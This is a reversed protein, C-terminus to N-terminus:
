RSPQSPAASWGPPTVEGYSVSVGGRTGLFRYGKPVSADTAIVLWQRAPSPHSLGFSARYPAPVSVSWGTADLEDVAVAGEIWSDPGEFSVGVAVDPRLSTAGIAVAASAATDSQLVASSLLAQAVLYVSAGLAAIASAGAVRHGGRLSPLTMLACAVILVGPAVAWEMLYAFPLGVVDAGAAVGVAVGVLGMIALRTAQAPPGKVNLVGLVIVAVAFIGLFVEGPLRSSPLQRGHIGLSQALANGALVTGTRLGATQHQSTFFRVVLTANGPHNRVQQVVVPLWAAVVVLVLGAMVLYRTPSPSQTTAEGRSLRARLTLALGVLMWVVALPATGIDTQVCFTLLLLGLGLRLGTSTSSVSTLLVGALILPWVVIYPNWTGFTITPGLAAAGLASAAVAPWRCRRGYERCLVYGTGVVSAGSILSATVAQLQGGSLRTVRGVGALLYFYAPGPHNWGYRDYPGLLQQWRAARRTALDLIAFDGSVFIHPGLAARIVLVIYPLALLAVVTGLSPAPSESETAGAAAPSAATIRVPM